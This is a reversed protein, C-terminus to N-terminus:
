KKYVADYVLVAAGLTIWTDALNFAPFCHAKACVLIFDYVSGNMIRDLLNGCAGSIILAIGLANLKSQAKYFWYLLIAIIGATACGIAMPANHKAFMGFSVGSNWVSELRLFPLIEVRKDSIVHKIAKKSVYDLAFLISMLLILWM